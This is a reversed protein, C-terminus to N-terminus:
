PRRTRQGDVAVDKAAHLCHGCLSHVCKWVRHHTAPYGHHLRLARDPVSHVRRPENPSIVYRRDAPARALPRDFGVCVERSRRVASLDAQGRLFGESVVGRRSRPSQAGGPLKGPASCRCCGKVAASSPTPLRSPRPSVGFSSATLQSRASPLSLRRKGGYGETM